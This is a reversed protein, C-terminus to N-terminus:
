KIDALFGMPQAEDDDDDEDGQFMGVSHTALLLSLVVLWPERFEYALFGTVALAALNLILSYHIPHLKM